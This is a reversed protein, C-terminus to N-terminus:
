TVSQFVFSIVQDKDLFLLDSRGCLVRVVTLFDVLIQLITEPYMTGPRSLAHRLVATSEEADGLHDM